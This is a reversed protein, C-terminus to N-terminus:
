PPRNGASWKAGGDSDPAPPRPHPQPIKVHHGLLQVPSSQGLNSIARSRQAKGEQSVSCRGSINEKEARSLNRGLCLKTAGESCGKSRGRSSGCDARPHAWAPSSGPLSLPSWKSPEQVHSGPARPKGGEKRAAAAPQKPCAQALARCAQFTGAPCLM